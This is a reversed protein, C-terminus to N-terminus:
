YVKERKFLTIEGTVADFEDESLDLYERLMNASQFVLPKTPTAMLIKKSDDERWNYFSLYAILATKGVGTPIVIMSNQEVAQAFLEQQYERPELILQM